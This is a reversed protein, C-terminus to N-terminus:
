YANLIVGGDVGLDALDDRQELNERWLNTHM